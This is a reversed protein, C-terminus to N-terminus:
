RADPGELLELAEAVDGVDVLAHGGSTHQRFPEAAPEAVLARRLLENVVSSIDCGMVVNADCATSPPLSTM